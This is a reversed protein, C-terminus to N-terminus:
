LLELEDWINKLSEEPHIDGFRLGQFEEATYDFMTCAAPNSYIICRRGIDAIIIGEAATEFIARYREESEKLAQEMHMRETIDRVIVSLAPKGEYQLINSSSEAIITTGDGKLLLGERREPVADESHMVRRYFEAVSKRNEPVTFEALSRGLVQEPECGVIRTFRRNAFVIIGEQVVVYGDNMDDVLVRHKEEMQKRETIDRAIVYAAPKGEYQILQISVEVIIKTGDAKMMEAEHRGPVKKEGRMVRQYQEMGERRKDAVLFFDMPKGLLQGPEYGLIKDFRRNAFVIEGEQIIMYGDNMDELLQRYKKDGQRRETVDQGVSLLGVTSGDQDKIISDYWEIYCEVGDKTVIPNVNGKTKIDDVAGLFMEEINKRDSELLFTEFWDKGRVEEIAYGSIEEMYPNFNIIRGEKDLELVIVQVTDLINKIYDKEKRLEEEAQKRGTIDLAYINVQEMEVVPALTLFVWQGEYEVEANISAGSKIAESVRETWKEPLHEGVECGWHRLLSKSANNAYAITGDKDVRLVPNPNEAPFRALRRVVEETRKQLTSEIIKWAGERRIMAYWCNSVVDIVGGAGCRDLPYSCVTIMRLSGIVDGIKREYEAFDNRDKRDLWFANGAVRLGNFGRELAEKEKEAWRQLINGADFKGSQIYWDKYDLIEIQGKKIYDDFDIVAKGLEAKAEESVLPESIVWMCVENSELGAKFYPVLIDILDERTQYFQCIHTGWPVNGVAEIGTIRDATEM